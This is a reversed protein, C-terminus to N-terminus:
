ALVKLVKAVPEQRLLSRFRVVAEQILRSSVGAEMDDASTWRSIADVDVLGGANSHDCVALEIGLCGSCAEFAPRVDDLFLRRLEPLEDPDVASQFLRLCQPM